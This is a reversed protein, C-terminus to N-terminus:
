CGEGVRTIVTGFISLFVCINLIVAGYTIWTNTQVNRRFSNGRIALLSLPLVPLFYRGQVGVVEELGVPTWAAMMSLVVAFSIVGFIVWSLCRHKATYYVPEEAPKTAAIFLLILFGMIYFHPIEVDMWGLQAGFMNELWMSGYHWFSNIMIKITWVPDGLIQAMTYSDADTYDLKTNDGAAYEIIKGIRFALFVLAIVAAMSAAAIVYKKTSGFKSKPIFFMMFALLLYVVKIPALFAMVATLIIMDKVEVKEKMFTLDLVYAIFYFSMGLVIGDYSIASILELVMPFLAILGIIEKGFPMKRMALIFFILFTLLSFMRALVMMPLQKLGILRGITIGIAQPLYGLYFCDYYKDETYLVLESNVPGKWNEGATLATYDYIGPKQNLLFESDETRVYAHREALDDKVFMMQNSMHYAGLFHYKEDCCSFPPMIFIYVFGFIAVLLASIKVIHKKYFDKKKFGIYGLFGAVALLMLSFLVFIIRVKDVRPAAPVMPNVKFILVNVVLIAIIFLLAFAWIIEQHKMCFAKFKNM